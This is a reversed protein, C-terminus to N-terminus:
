CRNKSCFKLYVFIMVMLIQDAFIMKMCGVHKIMRYTGGGVPVSVKTKSKQHCRRQSEFHARKNTRPLPKRTVHERHNVKPAVGALSNAALMTALSIEKTHRHGPM